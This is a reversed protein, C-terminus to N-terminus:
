IVFFHIVKTLSANEFNMIKFNLLMNSVFINVHTQFHIKCIKLNKLFFFKLTLIRKLKSVYHCVNSKKLFGNHYNSQVHLLVRSVDDIQM